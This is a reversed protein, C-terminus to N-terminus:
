FLGVPVDPGYKERCMQLEVVFSLDTVFVYPGTFTGVGSTGPSIPSRPRLLLRILSNVPLLQLSRYEPARDARRGSV